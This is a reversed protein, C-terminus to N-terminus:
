IPVLGMGQAHKEHKQHPLAKTLVDAMQEPNHCSEVTIIGAHILRQIWHWCTDIHKTHKHFQPNRAMALSAENDGHIETPTEQDLLSLESYLNQLWCAECAAESIAVYEAETSSLAQSIQRKSSWTITGNRAIYIYGSTSKAEDVNALAADSYGHFFSPSQPLAKYVIGYSHTGSLYRLIRKLATTHQLSPNATYSTLRNVIYSIDPHTANMIYQLEGLLRAFSNSHDGINGKPNPEITVNLDLLLPSQM